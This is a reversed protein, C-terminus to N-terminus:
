FLIKTIKKICGVPIINRDSFVAEKEDYSAFTYLYQSDKKFVYANTIIFAPEMKEFEEYTAHAADGTIDVWRINYFYYRKNSIIAHKYKSKKRTM